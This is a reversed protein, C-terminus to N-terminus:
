TPRPDIAKALAGVVTSIALPGSDQELEAALSQLFAEATFDIWATPADYALDRLHWLAGVLAQNTQATALERLGASLADM